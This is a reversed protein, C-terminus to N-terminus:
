YPPAPTKQCRCSGPLSGLVGIMQVLEAVIGRALCALLQAITPRVLSTDAVLISYCASRAQLFLSHLSFITFGAIPISQGLISM